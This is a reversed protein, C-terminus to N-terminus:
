KLYLLVKLPAPYLGGTLKLVQKKAKGFIQDRVWNIQLAYGLITDTLSKKSRDVKIKGSALDRAINIAVEELYQVTRAEPFDLGPGVPDVLVDVIGLKKARDAKVTKGTLELDLATPVGALRPVRQTGGGGPLLGLMVEPLGLGTKRDKVAIRYHCALALELGGGLCSGQIAAIFPKKSEEIANMIAQADRSIKTVEEATKLSSLMNIDAGAVFCGPKGSILVAAQIQPNSQIDNFISQFEDM